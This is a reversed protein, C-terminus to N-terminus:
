QNANNANHIMVIISSQPIFFMLFVNFICLFVYVCFYLFFCFCVGIRFAGRLRHYLGECKTGRDIKPRDYGEVRVLDGEDDRHSTKMEGEEMSGYDM